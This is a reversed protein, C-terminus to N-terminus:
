GTWRWYDISYLTSEIDAEQKGYPDACSTSDSCAEKPRRVPVAAQFLGATASPTARRIIMLLQQWRLHWLLSVNGKSGAITGIVVGMTLLLVVVRATGTRRHSADLCGIFWIRM